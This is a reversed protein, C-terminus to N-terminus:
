VVAKVPEDDVDIYESADEYEALYFWLYVLGTQLPTFQVTFATWEGDNTITQTSLTETRAASAGNSLYSAKLYAEGSGLPTDWASGVRAYVTITIEVDATALVPTFGSIGEGLILPSILGCNANSLMKAYSASGGSRPSATQRSITGNYFYASNAGYVADEDEVFIRAGLTSENAFSSFTGSYSCNRMYVYGSSQSGFYVIATAFETTLGFTTNTIYILGVVSLAYATAQAGKNFVCNNIYAVAAEGAYIAAGYTNSFTCSDLYAIGNIQMGECGSVYGDLIECGVFKALGLTTTGNSCSVCGSTDASLKFVINEFYWFADGSLNVQYAANEFDIIPKVDSNDNWPDNTTADCGIISIWADITGDEDFTIDAAATGQAMTTNARVFLRDGATRVTTTTYYNITKFAKIIYYTDGAQMGVIATALIATDSAADFDSILSGAGVTSNWLFDGNIYDDGGTLAADTLHTTDSTSDVTLDATKLGDHADNGNAFDVYYDTHHPSRTVLEAKRLEQEKLCCALKDILRQEKDYASQCDQVKSNFEDVVTKSDKIHGDKDYPAIQITGEERLQIRIGDIKRTYMPILREIDEDFKFDIQRVAILKEWAKQDLAYDKNVSIETKLKELTLTM